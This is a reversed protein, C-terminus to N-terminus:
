AEWQRTTEESIQTGDANCIHVVIEAKLPGAPKGASNLGYWNRFTKM